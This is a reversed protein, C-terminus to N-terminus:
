VCGSQLLTQEPASEADTDLWDGLVQMPMGHVNSHQMLPSGNASAKYAACTSGAVALLFARSSMGSFSTSRTMFSTATWSPGM